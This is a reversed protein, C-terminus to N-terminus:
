YLWDAKQRRRIYINCTTCPIDDRGEKKGLLMYRAYNIRENNLCNILGDTFANGFDSKVNRCCGLVRGDFNIQPGEWLMRCINERRWKFFRKRRSKIKTLDKKKVPSFTEDWSSKLVFEMNLDNAMQRAAQLEQINHGFIIFQWRLHPFESNYKNKYSILKKINNIVKEFNGKRRYISYSKQTVGDISCTMSIFKYKVLAELIDDSVTNLNVGNNALLILKKKYGYKIIKLLDPNLFIEGYNSLEISRIWPNENILKTFSNFKLFGTGLTKAILGKANSCSPCKLQCATSAELAIHNPKIIM